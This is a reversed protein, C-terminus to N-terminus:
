IFLLTKIQNQFDSTFTIIFTMAVLGINERIWKTTKLVFIRNVLIGYILTLVFAYMLTLYINM